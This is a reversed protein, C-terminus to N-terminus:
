CLIVIYAYSSVDVNLRNTVNGMDWVVVRAKTCALDLNLTGGPIAIRAAHRVNIPIEQAVRIRELFDVLSARQWDTHSGAHLQEDELRPLFAPVVCGRTIRVFRSRSTRLESHLRPLFAPVICGRTIRVFRTRSIRLEVSLRLM